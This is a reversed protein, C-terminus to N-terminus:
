KRKRRPLPIYAKGLHEFELKKSTGFFTKIMDLQEITQLANYNGKYQLNLTQLDAGRLYVRAITFNGVPEGDTHFLLWIERVSTKIGRLGNIVDILRMSEGPRRVYCLLFTESHYAKDALLRRLHSALDTQAHEDYEKVEIEMVQRSSGKQGALPPHISIAFIDPADNSQPNERLWYQESTIQSYGLLFVAAVWTERVPQFANNTLGARVSDMQYVGEMRQLAKTPSFFIDISDLGPSYSGRM